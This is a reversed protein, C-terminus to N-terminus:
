VTINRLFEASKEPIASNIYVGSGLEFGATQIVRPVISLYWHFYESKCEKPNQSNISYNFDPDELGEYLKGLLTKLHFSFDRIEDDTITSFTACHRKPFIWTHFPSLAAYPIFTVFHDTDLIIRRGDSLEDQLTACILCEGTNDFFRIGEEIRNRVLFPTVPTAIIQSHPHELSTGAGEGHNKFVIVHEIGPNNYLEDFRTRYTRVIDSIDEIHMQAISTNHLPSEIVVEHQGFGTVMHRNAENIRKRERAPSLAPFKNPTVRVKWGTSGNIRMLEQPTRDENGPCFPCSEIFQPLNKRLKKQKFDHPRKARESAIIVWERTILNLRLESM